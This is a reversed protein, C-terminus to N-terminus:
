ISSRRDPLIIAIRERESFGAELLVAALQDSARAYDAWTFRSSDTIYAVDNPQAAALKTVLEAITKSQWWGAARYSEALASDTGFLKEDM